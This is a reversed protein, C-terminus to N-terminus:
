NPKIQYAEQKNLAELKDEQAVIGYRRFMSETKWGMLEMTVSTDVGAARKSRASTRRLDHFLLGPIGAKATIEPWVKRVYSDTPFVREEPNKGVILAQFLVRLTATLPVERPEGNKSDEIRICNDPLNINKVRVRDILEGRRWGLMHAAEVLARMGISDEGAAKKLAEMQTRNAFGKRANEEKVLHFRPVRKVLPPEQESGLYFAKRIVQLERNITTNSAGEALRELRYKKQITSNFLYAKFKEFRPKLHLDWRSKTDVRFDDKKEIEYHDLLNTILEGVTVRRYRPEAFEDDQMRMVNRLKIRAQHESETKCSMLVQRGDRYFSMWWINGRKYISGDGRM